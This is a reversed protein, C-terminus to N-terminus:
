GVLLAAPDELRERECTRRPLRRRPEVAPTFVHEGSRLLLTELTDDGFPAVRAVVGAPPRVAPQLDLVQACLFDDDATPLRARPPPAARDARQQEADRSVVAQDVDAVDPRPESVLHEAIQLCVERRERAVRGRESMRHRALVRAVRLPDLRLDDALDDEGLPGALIPQPM